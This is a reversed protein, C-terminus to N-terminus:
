SVRESRLLDILDFAQAQADHLAHHPVVPRHGNRDLGWPGPNRGWDASRLCLTRYDFPMPLDAETLWRLVWAHDFTCPNAVFVAHDTMDRVWAVFARAAEHRDVPDVCFIEARAKDNQERWWAHTGPDWTNNGSVRKYWSEVILGDESVAVAGVSLLEHETVFPNLGSTEVDVSFFTTVRAAREGDTDTGATM